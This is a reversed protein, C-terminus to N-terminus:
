SFSDLPLSSDLANLSPFSLFFPPRVSLAHPQATHPLSGQLLAVDPHTPPSVSLHFPFLVQSPFALHCLITAHHACLFPSSVPSLYSLLPPHRPVPPPEGKAAKEIRERDGEERRGEREGGEESGCGEGKLEGGM